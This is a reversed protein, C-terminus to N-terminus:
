YKVKMLRLLGVYAPRFDQTASGGNNTAPTAGNTTLAVSDTAPGNTATEGGVGHRHKEGSSDDSHVWADGDSDESVRVNTPYEFTTNLSGSNHSHDDVQHNHANVTHTHSAVTHSHVLSREHAGGTGGITPPLSVTSGTGSTAAGLIFANRLDPLTVSGGGAFDHESSSLVQGVPVVWGTPVAVSDSPRWWEIVMGLEFTSGHALQTSTITNNAIKVATVAGDALKVTTIAGDAIGGTPIQVGHGSTHDHADIAVFNAALQVHDYPDSSNPWTTLGMNATTAM